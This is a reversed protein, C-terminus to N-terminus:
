KRVRNKDIGDVGKVMKIRRIGLFYFAIGTVGFLYGIGGFVDRLRISEEFSDLQERMPRIQRAVARAIMKEMEASSLPRGTIDTVIAEASTESAGSPKVANAAAAVPADTSTIKKGIAPLDDPLEYAKVVFSAAHGNGADIRLIHDCKYRAIFVFEGNDNTKAHGLKHGGPSSVQVTQGRLRVGGSLYAYGAIKNGDVTAFLKLKHAYAPKADLLICAVLVCLTWFFIATRNRKRNRKCM